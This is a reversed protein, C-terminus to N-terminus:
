SYDKIKPHNTMAELVVYLWFDKDTQASQM